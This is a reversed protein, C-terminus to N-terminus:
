SYIRKIISIINEPISDDFIETGHSTNGKGLIGAYVISGKGSLIVTFTNFNGNEWDLGITGDIEPTIEPVPLQTPLANLFSAADGYSIASIPLAGYGDWNAM